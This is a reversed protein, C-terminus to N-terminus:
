GDELMGQLKDLLCDKIILACMRESVVAGIQDSPNEQSDRFLSDSFSRWTELLKRIHLRILIEPVHSISRVSGFSHIIFYCHNYFSARLTEQDLDSNIFSDPVSNELSM